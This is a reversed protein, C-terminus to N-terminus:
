LLKIVQQKGDTFTFQLYNNNQIRAIDHMSGIQIKIPENNTNQIYIRYENQHRFREHKKFFGVTGSYNDPYYNVKNFEANCYGDKLLANKVRNIFERPNTIVILAEGFTNTCFDTDKRDGTIHESYVGSLCYINGKHAHDTRIVMNIAPMSVGDEDIDKGVDCFRVTGEGLYNRELISDEPDSREWNGDCKRIFDITNIYLEGKEYLAKIHEPRGRRYLLFVENDKIYRVKKSTAKSM